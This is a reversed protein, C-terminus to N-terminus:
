ENRREDHDSPRCWGPLQRRKNPTGQDERKSHLACPPPVGRAYVQMLRMPLRCGPEALLGGAGGQFNAGKTQRERIKENAIFLVRRHSEELMFKCSDCQFGAGQNLWYVVKEHALADDARDIKELFTRAVDTFNTDAVGATRDGVPYIKGGQIQGWLM